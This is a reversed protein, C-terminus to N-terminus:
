KKEMIRMYGEYFGHDPEAAARSCRMCASFLLTRM